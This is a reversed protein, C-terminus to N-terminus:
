GNGGGTGGGRGSGRGGRGRGGAGGRKGSRGSERSSSLAANMLRGAGGGVKRGDNKDGSGRVRRVPTHATSDDSAATAGAANQGEGSAPGDAATSSGSGWAHLGRAPTAEPTGSPNAASPPTKGDKNAESPPAGLRSFVSARQPKTEVASGGVDPASPTGEVPSSPNPASSSPGAATEVTADAAPAAAPSAREGPRRRGGKRLFSGIDGSSRRRYRVGAASADPTGGTSHDSDSRQLSGPQLAAAAPSSAADAEPGDSAEGGSPKGCSAADSPEEAGLREVSAEREAGAASSSVDRGEQTEQQGRDEVTATQEPLLAPGPNDDAPAAAERDKGSENSEGLENAPVTPSSSPREKSSRAASSSSSAQTEKEPSTTATTEEEASGKRSSSATGRPSRQPSASNRKSSTAETAVTLEGSDGADDGDGPARKGGDGSGVSREGREEQSWRSEGRAAGAVFGRDGGGGGRTGAFTAAREVNGWRSKRASPAPPNPLAMSPDLVLEGEEPEEEPEQPSAQGPAQAEDRSDARSRRIHVGGGGSRRSRDESRGGGRRDRDDESRSRVGWRDDREDERRGTGAGHRERDRDRDREDLRNGGSASHRDGGGGGGGGRLSAEMMKAVPMLVPTGGIISVGMGMGLNSMGGAASRGGGTSVGGGGSKSHRGDRSSSRRGRSDDRAPSGPRRRNTGDRSATSQAGREPSWRSGRANSSSSPHSGIDARRGSSERGNIDAVRSYDLESGRESRSRESRDRESRDRESRDRESRDRESRDRESRDRESRDRESRDRESRDRESRDRDRDSRDRGARDRDARDRDPEDRDSRDRESRGGGGRGHSDVGPGYRDVSSALRSRAGGDKGGDGRRRRGGGDPSSDRGLGPGYADLAKLSGLGQRDYADRGRESAKSGLGGGSFELSAPPSSASGYGEMGPLAGGGGGSGGSSSAGAVSDRPAAGRRASPRERSTGTRGQGAYGDGSGGNSGRRARKESGGHGDDRRPSLGSDARSRSQRPADRLESSTRGSEQESRHRRTEASRHLPDPQLAVAAYGELPPTADFDRSRKRSSESSGARSPRHHPESHRDGRKDKKDRKDKKSKKKSPRHTSSSNHDGEAHDDPHRDGDHRASVSTGEPESLDSRRRKREGGERDRSNDSNRRVGETAFDPERAPQSSSGRKRWEDGRGREEGRQREYLDEHERGGRSGEGIDHHRRGEAKDRRGSARDGEADGKERDEKDLRGAADSYRGEDKGRGSTRDKNDRSAGRGDAGGKDRRERDKAARDQEDKSRSDDGRSEEGAEGRAQDRRRDKERGRAAAAAAATADEEEEELKTRRALSDAREKAEKGEKRAAEEEAKKRRSAAIMEQRQMEREKKQRERELAKAKGKEKGARRAEEKRRRRDEQEQERKSLGAKKPSSSGAGGGAGGKQARAAAPAATGNEVSEVTASAAAPNITASDKGGETKAEPVPSVREPSPSAESPVTSPTSPAGGDSDLGDAGAAETKVSGLDVGSGTGLRRDGNAGILGTVQNRRHGPDENARQYQLSWCGEPGQPFPGGGQFAQAWWAGPVAVNRALVDTLVSELSAHREAETQPAAGAASAAPGGAGGSSPHRPPSLRAVDGPSQKGESSDGIAAAAPVRVWAARKKSTKGKGARAGNRDPSVVADGGPDLALLQKGISELSPSPVSGRQLWADVMRSLQAHETPHLGRRRPKSGACVVAEMMGALVEGATTVLENEGDPTKKEAFRYSLSDVANIACVCAGFAARAKVEAMDKDKDQPAVGEARLTRSWVRVYCLIRSLGKKAHGELGEACLWNSIAQDSGPDRGCRKLLSDLRGIVQTELQLEHARAERTSVSEGFGLRREKKTPTVASAKNKKYASLSIRKGSM